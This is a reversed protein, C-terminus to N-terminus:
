KENIKLKLENALADRGKGYHLKRHCNPCIGACNEVSDDGNDVLRIIHHVELFPRGDETEFPAPENCCECVGSARNLVWAKVDPNRQYQTLTVATLKPKGNGAPKKLKKNKASVQVQAEFEAIAENPRQEAKSILQEIQKVQNVTINGKPKLGLVWTRGLLEFVHSINQMRFEYAKKGRLHKASLSRYVEAKNLKIGNRTADLMKLYENVTDEMELDTWPTNDLSDILEKDVEKLRIEFNLKRLSQFCPTDEGASFHQAKVEVNLKQSLALGFIAKPPYPASDVILDYTTSNGYTPAKSGLRLFEAVANHIDESTLPRALSTLNAIRGSKDLKLKEVM